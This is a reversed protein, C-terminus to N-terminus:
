QELNPYVNAKNDVDYEGFTTNLDSGVYWYCCCKVCIGHRSVSLRFWMYFVQSICM